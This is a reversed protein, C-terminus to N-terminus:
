AHGAFLSLVKPMAADGEETSVILWACHNEELRATIAAEHRKFNASYEKRTARSNWIAKRNGEHDQLMYYCGPWSVVPLERERIDQTYICIVDHMLAANGLMDWDAKTMNMFDSVIFVLSRSMPLGTLAKALGDGKNDGLVPASEDLISYMVPYLNTNVFRAPIEDVVGDRNYAILGLKDRTKDVSLMISAAMEAGLVAKTCRHTGFRTSPSKDFLLYAKVEKAEQYVVKMLRRVKRSTHWDIFRVDDGIQYDDLEFFDQGPGRYLSKRDGVGPLPNDTKWDIPIPQEVVRALIQEIQADFNQTM